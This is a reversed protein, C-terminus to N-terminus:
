NSLFSLPLYRAYRRIDEAKLEYKTDFSNYKIDFLDCGSAAPGAIKMLYDNNVPTAGSYKLDSRQM